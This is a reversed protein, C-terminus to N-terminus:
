VVKIENYTKERYPTVLGTLFEENLDELDTIEIDLLEQSSKLTSLIAPKSASYLTKTELSASSFPCWYIFMMRDRHEQGVGTLYSFDFVCYRPVNKPLDKLFDTFTSDREGIKDQAILKSKPGSRIRYTVYRLKKHRLKSFAEVVEKDCKIGSSVSM